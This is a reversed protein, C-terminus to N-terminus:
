GAGGLVEAEGVSEDLGAWVRFEEYLKVGGEWVKAWLM